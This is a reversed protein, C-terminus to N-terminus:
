TRALDRVAALATDIEAPTNMIGAALRAYSVKYPSSTAHIRREALRAVVAEPSLGAVEFCNIGAALSGDLPTHLTM